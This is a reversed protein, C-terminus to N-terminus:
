RPPISLVKLTTIIIPIEIANTNWTTSGRDSVTIEVYRIYGGEWQNWFRLPEFGDIIGLSLLTRVLIGDKAEWASARIGGEQICGGEGQNETAWISWYERTIGIRLSTYVIGIRLSAPRAWGIMLFVLTKVSLQVFVKSGKFM